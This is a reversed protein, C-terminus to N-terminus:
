PTPLSDQLGSPKVFNFYFSVEFLAARMFLAVGALITAWVKGM